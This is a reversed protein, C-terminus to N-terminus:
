HLHLWWRINMFLKSMFTVNFNVVLVFYEFQFSKLIKCQETSEKLSTQMNHLIRFMMHWKEQNCLRCKDTTNNLNPGNGGFKLNPWLKGRERESGLHPKQPVLTTSHKQSRHRLDYNHHNVQEKFSNGAIGTYYKSKNDSTVNPRYVVPGKLCQGEM